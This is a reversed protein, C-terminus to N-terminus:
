EEPPLMPLRRSTTAAEPVELKGTKKSIADPIPSTMTRVARINDIKKSLTDLSFPKQLLGVNHGAHKEIFDVFQTPPLGSFLLIQTDGDRYIEPLEEFWYRIFEAGDMGPMNYDVLILKPIERPNLVQLADPGSAFAQVQFGLHELLAKVGDRVLEDDDILFALEAHKRSSKKDMIQKISVTSRRGQVSATSILSPEPAAPESREQPRPWRLSISTGRNPRSSVDVHGLHQSMIGQVMALGLGTGKKKTSYFPEFIKLIDEEPIGVGTDKVTLCATDLSGQWLIEITGGDPMAERANKILNLLSHSLSAYCGYTVIPPQGSQLDPALNLRHKPGLSLRAINAVDNVLDVVNFDSMELPQRKAYGLLSRTLSTGSTCARIINVLSNRDAEKLSHSTLLAEVNAQIGMILNNFDHAVGSALEGISQLKRNEVDTRFDKNWNTQSIFSFLYWHNLSQTGADVEGQYNVQVSYRDDPNDPHVYDPLSQEPQGNVTPIVEVLYTALDLPLQEWSILNNALQNGDILFMYQASLNASALRYGTDQHFHM